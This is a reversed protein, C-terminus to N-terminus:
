TEFRARLEPPLIPCRDGPKAFVRKRIRAIGEYLRDLASRPLGRAVFAIARWLGGLRSAIEIAATAQTCLSGDELELVISDPLDRRALGHRALMAEFSESALPAFRLRLPEPSAREEALIFRVSRHCLGCDGDYYLRAPSPPAPPNGPFPVAPRDSVRWSRGPIWGPDFTLAHLLWV